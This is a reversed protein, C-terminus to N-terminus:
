ALGQAVNTAIPPTGRAETFWAPDLSVGEDSWERAFGPLAGCGQFGAARDYRFLELLQIRGSEMGAVEVISM